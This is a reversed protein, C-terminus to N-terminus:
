RNKADDCPFLSAWWAGVLFGVCFGIVLGGLFTV